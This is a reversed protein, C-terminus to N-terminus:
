SCSSPRCSMDLLKLMKQPHQQLGYQIRSKKLRAMPLGLVAAMKRRKGEKEAGLVLSHMLLCLKPDMELQVRIEPLDILPTKTAAALSIVVGTYILNFGHHLRM